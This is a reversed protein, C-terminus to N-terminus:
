GEGFQSGESVEEARGECLQRHEGGASVKFTSDLHTQHQQASPSCPIESSEQEGRKAASPEEGKFDILINFSQESKFSVCSPGPGPGDSAPRGYKQRDPLHGGKFDIFDDMSRDSKFSVCSPGPGPGPGPEPGPKDSQPRQHIRQAEHGGCLTTRSPRVGEERDESQNM